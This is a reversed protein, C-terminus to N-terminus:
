AKLLHDCRTYRAGFHGQGHAQSCQVNMALQPLQTTFTAVVARLLSATDVTIM